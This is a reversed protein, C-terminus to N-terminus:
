ARGKAETLEEATMTAEIDALADLSAKRETLDDRADVWRQIRAASEARALEDAPMTAWREAELQADLVDQPEQPMSAPPQETPTAVQALVQSIVTPLTAALADAVAEAVARNLDDSM